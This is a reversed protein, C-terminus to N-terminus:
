IESFVDTRGQCQAFSLLLLTVVFKATKEHIKVGCIGCKIPSIKYPRTAMVAVPNILAVLILDFRVTFGCNFFVDIFYFLRDQFWKLPNLYIKARHFLHGESRIM